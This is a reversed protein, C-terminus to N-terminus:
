ETVTDNIPKLVETRFVTTRLAATGALTLTVSWTPASSSFTVTTPSLASTTCVLEGAM